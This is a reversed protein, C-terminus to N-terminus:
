QIGKDSKTSREKTAPKDGLRSQLKNCEELVEKKKM